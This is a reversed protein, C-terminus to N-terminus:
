LFLARDNGERVVFRRRFRFKGYGAGMEYEGCILMLKVNIAYNAPQIGIPIYKRVDGDFKNVIQQIWFHRHGSRYCQLMQVSNMVPPHSVLILRKCNESSM